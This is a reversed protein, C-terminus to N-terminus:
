TLANLLDIYKKSTYTKITELSWSSMPDKRIQQRVPESSKCDIKPLCLAVMTRHEVFDLESEDPLRVVKTKGKEERVKNYIVINSKIHAPVIPTWGLRHLLAESSKVGLRVKAAHVFCGPFTDTTPRVSYALAETIFQLVWDGQQTKLGCHLNYAERVESSELHFGGQDKRVPTRRCLHYNSNLTKLIGLMEVPNARLGEKIQYVEFTSVGQSHMSASVFDNLLRQQFAPLLVKEGLSPDKVIKVKSQDAGTIACAFKILLVLNDLSGNDSTPIVPVRMSLQVYPSDDGTAVRRTYVCIPAKREKSIKLKKLLLNLRDGDPITVSSNDIYLSRAVTNVIGTAVLSDTKIFWKWLLLETAKLSDTMSSIEGPKYAACILDTVASDYLNRQLTPPLLSIEKM